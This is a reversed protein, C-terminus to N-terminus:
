RRVLVAARERAEALARAARRRTASARKALRKAAARREKARAKREKGRRAAGASAIAGLGATLGALVALTSRLDLLLAAVLTLDEATWPGRPEITVRYEKGLLRWAEVTLAPAGDVELRAIPLLVGSEVLLTSAGGPREIRTKGSLPDHALTLWREGGPRVADIAIPALGHQRLEVVGARDEFLNPRGVRLRVTGVAAGDLTRLEFDTGM